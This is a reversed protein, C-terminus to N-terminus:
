STFLGAKPGVGPLEALATQAERYPTDERLTRLYADPGGPKGTLAAVSGAIFKARYGFGMGRLAEDTAAGLQAVTPFAYFDGLPEGGGGGGLGADDGGGPTGYGAGTAGAAAGAAADPTEGAAGPTGMTGGPTGGASAAGAENKEEEQKKKKAPTSKKKEPVAKQMASVRDDPELRTGYKACLREVMGRRLPVLQM